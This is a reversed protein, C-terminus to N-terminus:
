GGVHACASHKQRACIDHSCCCLTHFRLKTVIVIDLMAMTCCGEMNHKTHLQIAVAHAVSRLISDDQFGHEVHLAQIGVCTLRLVAVTIWM